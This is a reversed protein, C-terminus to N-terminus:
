SFIYFHGVKRFNPWVYHLLFGLVVSIWNLIYCYYYSHFDTSDITTNIITITLHILFALIFWLICSLLDNEFRALLSIRILNPLPDDNKFQSQTTKSDTTRYQETSVRSNDKSITLTNVSASLNQDIVFSPLTNTHNNNDDNSNNDGNNTNNNIKDLTSFKKNESNNVDQSEIWSSSVVITSPAEFNYKIAPTSTSQTLSDRSIM